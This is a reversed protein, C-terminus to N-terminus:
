HAEALAHLAPRDQSLPLRPVLGFLLDRLRDNNEKFVRLVQAHTVAEVGPLGADYDTILSINLAAMELERALIVEPYQTMNIVEWGQAAFWRSEATTSFRPGQIVVITGRDHVPIGLESAVTAATERMESDYPEAFSVHVVKPGDHFTDPRGWTRDVVQDCLVFHGPEIHPQLSGAACPLVVDTAGLQKMAWLNARYNIAHPPLEHHPGHRPMFGVARGQVEGVVVPASPPGYPTDVTVHEADDLLEYFGSGGFIGVQIRQSDM